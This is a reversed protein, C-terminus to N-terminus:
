ATAATSMLANHQIDIMVDIMDGVRDTMKDFVKDAIWETVEEMVVVSRDIMGAVGWWGRM